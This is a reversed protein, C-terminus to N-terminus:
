FFLYIFILAITKIFLYVVFNIFFPNKLKLSFCCEMLADIGDDPRLKRAPNERVGICM